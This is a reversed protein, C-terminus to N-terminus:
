FSSSAVTVLLRYDKPFLTDGHQFSQRFCYCLSYYYCSARHPIKNMNYVTSLLDELLSSALSRLDKKADAQTQSWTLIFNACWKWRHQACKRETSVGKLISTLVFYSLHRRLFYPSSFTYADKTISLLKIQSSFSWGPPRRHHSLWVM